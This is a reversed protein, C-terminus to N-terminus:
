KLQILKSIGIKITVYYFMIKLFYFIKLKEVFPKLILSFSLNHSILKLCCYKYDCM